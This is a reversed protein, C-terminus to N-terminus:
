KLEPLDDRCPVDLDLFTQPYYFPAEYMTCINSISAYRRQRPQTPLVTESGSPAAAAALDPFAPGHRPPQATQVPTPLLGSQDGMPPFDDDIMMMGGIVMVDAENLILGNVTFHGCFWPWSQLLIFARTAARFILGHLSQLHTHSCNTLPRKHGTSHPLEHINYREFNLLM